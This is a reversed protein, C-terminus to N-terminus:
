GQRRLRLVRTGADDLLSLADGQLHARRVTTLAAFFRAEQEMGGGICAMRTAAVAGFAIEQGSIRAKGSFRNCGGTGSVAGDPGIELVVPTEAPVAQGAIDTVQWRGQLGAADSPADHPADAIREVPITVKAAPDEPLPTHTTSIFWMRGDVLIKAQLAVVVASRLMAPDIRMAFAVPSATTIPAQFRGLATAPADARGVDQLDIQLVANPPLAMRERYVVAGRVVRSAQAMAPVAAAAATAAALGAFARRSITADDTM